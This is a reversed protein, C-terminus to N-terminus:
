KCDAMSGARANAQKQMRKAVTAEDARASLVGIRLGVAIMTETGSWFITTSCL